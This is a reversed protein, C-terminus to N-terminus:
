RSGHGAGLDDDRSRLGALHGTEGWSELWWVGDTFAFRNVGGNRLAFHRPGGVPLGLCHRFLAMLVGGHVVVLATRGSHRAAIRTLSAVSTTHRQRRSEGGPLVYDPDGSRLQAYDDPLRQGFEAMTLGQLVGLHRERLGPDPVAELGLRRAIIRATELARGLDSAYVFEVGEGALAGAVAQAQARGLSTLPSDLHGQQRGVLNWETEGHRVVICRCARDAGDSQVL